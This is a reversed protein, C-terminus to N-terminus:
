PQLQGPVTLQQLFSCVQKVVAEEHGKCAHGAGAIGVWKQLPRPRQIGVGESSCSSDGQLGTAAAALPPCGDAAAAAAASHRASSGDQVALLMREMLQAVAGSQRLGEPVAEDSESVLMLLPLTHLPGVIAQLVCLLLPGTHCLPLALLLSATLM